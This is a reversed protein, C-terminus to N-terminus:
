MSYRYMLNLKPKNYLKKIVKGDKLNQEVDIHYWKGLDVKKDFYYNRNGSVANTFHLFGNKNYFIAPARDGYKKLDDSGGNGKFALISSWVSNM